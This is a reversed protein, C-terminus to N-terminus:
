DLPQDNVISDMHLVNCEEFHSFLDTESFPTSPLSHLGEMPKLAVVTAKQSDIQRQLHVAAQGQGSHTAVIWVANM